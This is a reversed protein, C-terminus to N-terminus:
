SRARQATRRPRAALSLWSSQCHVTARGCPDPVLASSCLPEGVRTWCSTAKTCLPGDRVAGCLRSFMCSAISCITAFMLTDIALAADDLLRYAMVVGPPLELATGFIGPLM